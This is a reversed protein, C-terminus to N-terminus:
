IEAIGPRMEPIGARAARGISGAASVAGSAAEGSDFRAAITGPGLPSRQEGREAREARDAEGGGRSEFITNGYILDPHGVPCCARCSM